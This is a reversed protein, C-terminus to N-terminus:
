HCGFKDPDKISLGPVNKQSIKKNWKM